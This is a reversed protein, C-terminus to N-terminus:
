SARRVVRLPRPSASAGASCASFFASSHGCIRRSSSECSGALHALDIGHQALLGSGRARRAGRDPAASSSRRISRSSAERDVTASSSPGAPRHPPGDRRRPPPRSRGWPAPPSRRAPRWSSLRPEERWSALRRSPRAREGSTLASAGPAVALLHPRPTRAHTPPIRRARGRRGDRVAGPADRTRSRRPAVRRERPSSEV